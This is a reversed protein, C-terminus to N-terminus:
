KNSRMHQVNQADRSVRTEQPRHRSVCPYIQTCNLVIRLFCFMALALSLLAEIQFSVGYM